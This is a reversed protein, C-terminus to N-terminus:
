RMSSLNHMVSVTQSLKQQIAMKEFFGKINNTTKGAISNKNAKNVTISPKRAIKSKTTTVTLSSGIRSQQQYITAEKTCNTVKLDAIAATESQDCIYSDFFITANRSEKSTLFPSRSYFSDALHSEDELAEIDGQDNDLDIENRSDPEISHSVRKRKSSATPEDEDRYSTEESYSYVDFMFSPSSRSDSQKEVSEDRPSPIDEQYPNSSNFKEVIDGLSGTSVGTSSRELSFSIPTNVYSSSLSNDNASSSSSSQRSLTCNLYYTDRSQNSLSTFYKSQVMEKTTKGPFYRQQGSSSKEYCSVQKTSPTFMCNKLSNREAIEDRAELEMIPTVAPSGSKSKNDVEEVIDDYIFFNEDASSLGFSISPKSLSESSKATESLSDDFFSVFNSKKSTSSVVSVSIDQAM